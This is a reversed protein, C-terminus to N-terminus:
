ANNGGTTQLKFLNMGWDSALPIAPHLNLRVTIKRLSLRGHFELREAVRAQQDRLEAEPGHGEAVASPDELRDAGLPLGLGVASTRVDSSAPM